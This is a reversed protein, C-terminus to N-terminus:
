GSSAGPPLRSAPGGLGEAGLSREEHTEGTVGHGQPSPTRGTAVAPHGLGARM